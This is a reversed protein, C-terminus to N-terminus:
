AISLRVVNHVPNEHWIAAREASLAESRNLHSETSIRVVDVWWPTRARHHWKRQDFSNTAGIYLLRGDADFCRYVV